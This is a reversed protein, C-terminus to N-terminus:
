MGSPGCRVNKPECCTEPQTRCGEECWGQELAQRCSARHSVGRPNTSSYVCACLLACPLALALLRLKAFLRGSNPM